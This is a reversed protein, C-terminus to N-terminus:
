RWFYLGYSYRFFGLLYDTSVLINSVVRRLATDNEVM